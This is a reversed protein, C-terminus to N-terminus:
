QLYQYLGFLGIGAGGILLVDSAAGDTVLGLIVAAGGVVMLVKSHHMGRKARRALAAPSVSEARETARPLADAATMTHVGAVGAAAFPAEIPASRVIEPTAITPTAIVSPPTAVASGSAVFGAPGDQATATTPAALAVACLAAIVLHHISRHQVRAM